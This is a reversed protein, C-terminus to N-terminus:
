KNVKPKANGENFSREGNTRTLGAGRVVRGRGGGKASIEDIQKTQRKKWTM